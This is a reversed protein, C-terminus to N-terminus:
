WASAVSASSTGSGAVGLSLTSLILPIVVMILASLWLRGIPETVFAVLKQTAPGAGTLLNLTVGVTAGAVLGLLIKTHLKM